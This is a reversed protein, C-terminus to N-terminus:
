DGSRRDCLGHRYERTRSRAPIADNGLQQARLARRHPLGWLIRHRYLRRESASRSTSYVSQNIPAAQTPVCLAATSPM